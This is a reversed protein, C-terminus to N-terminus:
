RAHLRRAYLVDRRKSTEVNFARRGLELKVGSTLKVAQCCAASTSSGRTTATVPRTPDKGDGRYERMSM